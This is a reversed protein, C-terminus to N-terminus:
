PVGGSSVQNGGGASAIASAVSAGGSAAAPASQGSATTGGTFGAYNFLTWPYGAPTWPGGLGSSEEEGECGQLLMMAGLAASM